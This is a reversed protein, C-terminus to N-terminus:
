SRFLVNVAFRRLKYSLGIRRSPTFGTNTEKSQRYQEIAKRKTEFEDEIEKWLRRHNPSERFDEESEDDNIAYLEQLLSRSSSDVSVKNTISGELIEDGIEAEELVASLISTMKM